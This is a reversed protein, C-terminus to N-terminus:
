TEQELAEPIITASSFRWESPPGGEVSNNLLSVVIVFCQIAGVGDASGLDNSCLQTMGMFVAWLLNLYPCLTM